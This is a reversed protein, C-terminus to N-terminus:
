SSEFLKKEVFINLHLIWLYFMYISIPICHAYFINHDDFIGEIKSPIYSKWFMPHYFKYGIGKM